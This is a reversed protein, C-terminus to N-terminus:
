VYSLGLFHIYDIEDDVSCEVAQETITYQDITQPGTGVSQDKSPIPIYVSTATDRTEPSELTALIRSNGSTENTLVDDKDHDATDTDIISQEYHELHLETAETQAKHQRTKCKVLCSCMAQYRLESIKELGSRTCSVHEGDFTKVFFLKLSHSSESPM